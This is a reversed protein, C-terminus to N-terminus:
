CVWVKPLSYKQNWALTTQTFMPDILKLGPKLVQPCAATVTLYVPELEKLTAECSRKINVEQPAYFTIKPYRKNGQGKNYERVPITPTFAM